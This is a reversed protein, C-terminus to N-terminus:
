RRATPSNRALIYAKHEKEQQEKMLEKLIGMAHRQINTNPHGLLEALKHSTFDLPTQPNM